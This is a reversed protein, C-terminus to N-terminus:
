QEENNQILLESLASLVSQRSLQLQRAATALAELQPMIQQLRAQESHKSQTQAAVTMPKGRQRELIGEAELLSYAKSITMPNVTYHAALERVSPLADGARLQGGAVLRKIQETLQRYIPEGSNPTISIM